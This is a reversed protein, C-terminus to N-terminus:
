LAGVTPLSTPASSPAVLCGGGLAYLNAVETADLARSWIQMSKIAGQFFGGAEGSRGLWHEARTMSIPEWGYDISSVVGGDKYLKMSTGQVTGVLHMWAGTVIADNAITVRSQGGNYIDFAITASNGVYGDTSYIIINQSGGEQFFDCPGSRWNLADWRVYFAITMPGGLSQDVLDVYGDVGDFVVGEGAVCTAGNVLTADMGGVNDQLVCQDFCLEHDLALTYDYPTPAPTPAVSVTPMPSPSPGQCENFCWTYCLSRGDSVSLKASHWSSVSIGGDVMVGAMSFGACQEECHEDCRTTPVPTPMLTTTVCDCGTTVAFAMPSDGYEDTWHTYTSYLLAECASNNVFSFCEGYFYGECGGGLLERLAECTMSIGDTNIQSTCTADSYVTMTRESGTDNDCDLVWTTGDSADTSLLGAAGSDREGETLSAPCDGYKQYCCGDDNWVWGCCSEGNLVASKCEDCCATWDSLGCMSTEAGTSGINAGFVYGCGDGAATTPSRVPVATPDGPYVTPNPVPMATPSPTPVATPVSTPLATPASIPISTPVSTPVASPSPIPVATPSATPSATPRPVPLLTPDIVTEFYYYSYSYSFSSADAALKRAFDLDDSPSPWAGVLAVVGFFAAQRM